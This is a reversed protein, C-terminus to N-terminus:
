RNQTEERKGLAEKLAKLGHDHPISPYLGEVDATFLIADDRINSINKTKGIFDGSDKIYSWSRQM